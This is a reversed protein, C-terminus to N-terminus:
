ADVPAELKLNRNQAMKDNGPKGQDHTDAAREGLAPGGGGRVLRALRGGTRGIRGLVVLAPGVFEDFRRLGDVTRGAIRFTNPEAAPDNVKHPAVVEIGGKTVKIKIVPEAAGAAM